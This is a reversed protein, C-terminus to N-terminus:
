KGNSNIYAIDHELDGSMCLDMIGYSMYSTTNACPWRFCSPVKM